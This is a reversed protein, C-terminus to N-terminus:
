RLLNELEIKARMPDQPLFSLVLHLKDRDISGGYLTERSVNELNNTDEDSSSNRTFESKSCAVVEDRSCRVDRLRKEIFSIEELCDLKEKSLSDLTDNLEQIKDSNKEAIPRPTFETFLSNNEESILDLMKETEHIKIDLNELNKKKEELSNELEKEYSDLLDFIM